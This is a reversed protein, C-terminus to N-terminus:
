RFVAVFIQVAVLPIAILLFSGLSPVSPHPLSTATAARFRQRSQSGQDRPIPSKRLQAEDSRNQPLAAFGIFQKQPILFASEIIPPVDREFKFRFPIKNGQSGFRCLSSANAIGSEGLRSVSVEESGALQDSCTSVSFNKEVEMVGRLARGGFYKGPTNSALHERVAGREFLPIPWREDSRLDRSDPRPHDPSMGPRYDPRRTRNRRLRLGASRYVLGWFISSVGNRPTKTQPRIDRM